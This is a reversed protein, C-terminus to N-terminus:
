TTKDAHIGPGARRPGLEDDAGKNTAPPTVAKLNTFLESAPLQRATNLQAERVVGMATFVRRVM